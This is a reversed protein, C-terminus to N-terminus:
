IVLATWAPLLLLSVLTTKIVVSGSFDVDGGYRGALIFVNQPTPMAALLTLYALWPNDVHVIYKAIAFVMLPFVVCKVVIIANEDTTAGRLRLTSGGLYLGLAILAVPSAAAGAFSLGSLVQESVPLSLANCAIAAVCSVVVPTALASGVSRMVTTALHRETNDRSAAFELIALVVVTQFSM